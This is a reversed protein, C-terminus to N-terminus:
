AAINWSNWSREGIRQQKAHWQEAFRVKEEALVPLFLTPFPTSAAIADAENVALRIMEPSLKGAFRFSMESLISGKLQQIKRLCAKSFRRLGSHASPEPTFAIVEPKQSVAPTQTKM